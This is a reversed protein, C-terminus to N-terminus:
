APPKSRLWGAAALLCAAALALALPFAWRSSGGLSKLRHLPRVRSVVEGCDLSLEAGSSLETLLGHVQPGSLTVLETSGLEEALSFLQERLLEPGAPETPLRVWRFTGLSRWSLEALNLMPLQYNGPSLAISFLPVEARALDDGLQAFRQPVMITDLGGGLVVVVQRPPLARAGAPPPEAGLSELAARISDVLRIEVESSAQLKLLAELAARPALPQQRLPPGAGVPFLFLRSDAPLRPLFEALAAQMDAFLPRYPLSSEILLALDLRHEHQEAFRKRAMVCGPPECRVPRGNLRLTLPRGRLLQEGSLSVLRTVLRLHQESGFARELQCVPWRRPLEPQPRARAGQGPAFGCIALSLVAAALRRLRRARPPRVPNIAAIPLLIM